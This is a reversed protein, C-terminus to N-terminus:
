RALPESGHSTGLALSRGFTSARVEGGLDFAEVRVAAVGVGERAVPGDGARRAELVADATDLLAVVAAVDGVVRVVVLLHDVHAL